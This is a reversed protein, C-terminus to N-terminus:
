TIWSGLENLWGPRQTINLVSNFYHTNLALKWLYLIYWAESWNIFHFIFFVVIVDTGVNLLFNTSLPLISVELM